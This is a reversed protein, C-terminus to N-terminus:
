PWFLNDWIQSDRKVGVYLISNKKLFNQLTTSKFKFKYWHFLGSPFIIWKCLLLFIKDLKSLMIQCMSSIPVLPSLALWWPSMQVFKQRQDRIQKRKIYKIHRSTNKTSLATSLNNVFISILLIKQRCDKTLRCNKKDFNNFKRFHKEM